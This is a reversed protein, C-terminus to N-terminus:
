ANPHFVGCAGAWGAQLEKKEDKLGLQDLGKTYTEEWDARSDKDGPYIM